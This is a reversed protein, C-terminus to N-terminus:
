HPSPAPHLIRHPPCIALRPQLSPPKRWRPRSAQSVGPSAAPVAACHGGGARRGGAAWPGQRGQGGRHHGAPGAAPDQGGPVPHHGPHVDAHHVRVVGGPARLAPPPFTLRHRLHPPPSQPSAMSSQSASATAVCSRWGATLRQRMRQWQFRSCSVLLGGVGWGVGGGNATPM